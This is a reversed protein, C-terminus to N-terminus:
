SRNSLYSRFWENSKGRIGYCYLKNVFINHDITDFAKSFDILVTATAKKENLASYCFKTFEFVADNTSRM